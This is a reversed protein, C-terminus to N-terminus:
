TRPVRAPPIAGRWGLALGIFHVLLLALLPLHANMGEPPSGEPIAALSVFYGGHALLLSVMLGWRAWPEGRAFPRLTLAISVLDFGVIWLLAQLAHFRAHAPWTPDIIHEPVATVFGVIHGVSAIVILWKAANQKTM